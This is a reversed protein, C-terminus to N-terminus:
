TPTWSTRAARVRRRRGAPDAPHRDRAAPGGVAAVLGAGATFVVVLVFVTDFIVPAGRARRRDAPLHGARDARRRAARGLLHVGAAAWRCGSGSWAARAGVAAPGAAAARWRDRLAPGLAGALRDPAVLLGSCCSCGSRPWRPWARPSASRQGRPAAAARQGAGARVPLRRRLGVHAGADGLAFPWCACRSRPWRTSARVAAAGLPAAAAAGASGSRWASWRRRRGARRGGGARHGVLSATAGGTLREALAAVLLIVPADNLGSEAELAAAM